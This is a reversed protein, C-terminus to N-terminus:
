TCRATWRPWDTLWISTAQGLTSSAPDFGPGEDWASFTLVDDDLSGLSIRIATGPANKACNQLAELCCFYVATEVELPFRQDSALRDSEFRATPLMRVLHAELAAVLGQDALPPPFIGRALDRLSGLAEAAQVGVDDLLGEAEGPESRVLERALRAKVGLAVLYQRAGDHLDRELRRREADEAEM